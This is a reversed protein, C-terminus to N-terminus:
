RCQPLSPHQVPILTTPPRLSSSVFSIRDYLNSAAWQRIVYGARETELTRQYALVNACGSLAEREDARAPILESSRRPARVNSREICRRSPSPPTWSSSCRSWSPATAIDLASRRSSAPPAWVSATLRASPRVAYRKEYQVQGGLEGLFDPVASTSPVTSLAVGM